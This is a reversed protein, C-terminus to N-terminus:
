LQRLRLRRLQAPLVIWTSLSATQVLWCAHGDAIVGGAAAGGAAQRDLVLGQMPSGGACGALAVLVQVWVQTARMQGRGTANLKLAAGVHSSSESVDLRAASAGAGGSKSAAAQTM